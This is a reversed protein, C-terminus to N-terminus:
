TIAFAGIYSDAWDKPTASASRALARFTSEVMSSEELYLAGGDQQWSDYYTWAEAQSLVEDGMIAPTTVLRLFGIQTLRCFCLHADEPLSVFWRKAASHHVHTTYTLAIWVNLDPFLYSTSSRTM